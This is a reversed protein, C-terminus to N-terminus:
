FVLSVVLQKFNALAVAKLTDNKHFFSFAKKQCFITKKLTTYIFQLSVEENRTTSIGDVRRCVLGQAGRSNTSYSTFILYLGQNIFAHSYFLNFLKWTM